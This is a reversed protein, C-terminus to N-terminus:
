TVMLLQVAEGCKLIVTPCFHDTMLVEFVGLGCRLEMHSIEATKGMLNLEHRDKRRAIGAVKGSRHTLLFHWCM